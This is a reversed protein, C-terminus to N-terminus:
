PVIDECEAQSPSSTSAQDYSDNFSNSNTPKIINHNVCCKFDMRIKRSQQVKYQLKSWNQFNLKCIWGNIMRASKISFSKPNATESSPFIQTRQRLPWFWTNNILQISLLNQRKEGFKKNVFSSTPFLWMKTSVIHIFWIDTPRDIL